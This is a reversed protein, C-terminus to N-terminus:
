THRPPADKAVLLEYTIIAFAPAFILVALCTTISFGMAAMIVAAATTALALGLQALHLADLKNILFAYLAYVMIMFLALPVATTLIVAAPSIHAKHEIMYAAVHLGAGVAAISAFLPMHGYGWIFAKDRRHHLVYGWNVTFYIWWMSFTLGIGAAAIMVADFSWGQSEVVAGVAAVTGIVGEGLAIIALLGYREAIHHSHWPTGGQREAIAPASLEIIFLIAFLGLAVPLSPQSLAIACWGIQALLILAAYTMCSRRRASDQRAARLWLFVMALRMIVYGVVIIGNDFRGGDLAAFMAPIGLALITVGVMQVMTALRFVWDDTDYASSFWSYNIWAWVISSIALFFGILGSVWHGDAMHHAMQEGAVGFGVVFTLDYLLELPTAARHQEEPDRGRM